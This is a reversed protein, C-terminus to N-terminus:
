QDKTRGYESLWFAKAEAQSHFFREQHDKGDANRAVVVWGGDREEVSVSPRPKDPFGM